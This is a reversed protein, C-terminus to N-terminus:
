IRETRGGGVQRLLLGAGLADLQLAGHRQLRASLDDVLEARVVFGIHEEHAELRAAHRQVEGRSRM